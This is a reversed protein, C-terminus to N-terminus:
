DFNFLFGSYVVFYITCSCIVFLYISVFRLKRYLKTSEIFFPSWVIIHTLKLQYQGMPLSFHTMTQVIVGPVWISVIALFPVLYIKNFTVRSMRTVLVHANDQSYKNM